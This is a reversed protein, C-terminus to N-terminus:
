SSTDKKTIYLEQSLFEKASGVLYLGGKYGVITDLKNPLKKVFSTLNVQDLVDKM